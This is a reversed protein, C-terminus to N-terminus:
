RLSILLRHYKPGGNETGYVTESRAGLIEASLNEVRSRDISCENGRTGPIVVALVNAGALVWGNVRARQDDALKTTM